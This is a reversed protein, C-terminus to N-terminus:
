VVRKELRKMTDYMKQAGREISGNGAGRVADATFVFENKSLMAPVDDAKEKIGVPVFGGTERYDREMVGAKNSRMIGTPMGGSAVNARPDYINPYKGVAIDTYTDPGYIQGDPAKYEFRGDSRKRAKFGPVIGAYAAFGESDATIKRMTNEFESDPTPTTKTNENVYADYTSQTLKGEVGPVSYLFEDGSFRPKPNKFRKVGELLGEQSVGPIKETPQGQQKLYKNRDEIQKATLNGSDAALIGEINKTAQEQATKIATPFRLFKSPNFPNLARAGEQLTQYGAALTASVKPNVNSFKKQFDAGTQLAYEPIVDMGTKGKMAESVRAHDAFKELASKTTPNAKQLRQLIKQQSPNIAQRFAAQAARNRAINQALTNAMTIGGTQYGVRGGDRINYRAVFADRGADDLKSYEPDNAFYNDMYTRMQTGVYERRRELYDEMSEGPEPEEFEGQFYSALLSAGATIGGAVLQAAVGEPLAKIGKELVDGAKSLLSKDGGTLAVEDVINTGADAAQRDFLRGIPGQDFGTQTFRQRGLFTEPAQAGGLMGVGRGFAFTGVGQKLADSISGRQDFRGIGRMLAGVGPNFVSVVPAAKVAVSALENPILKRIRDKVLSGLGYMQRPM